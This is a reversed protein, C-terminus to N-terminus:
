TLPLTERHRLLSLLYKLKQFNSIKKMFNFIGFHKSVYKEIAKILYVDKGQKFKDVLM